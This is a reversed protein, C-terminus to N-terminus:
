LAITHPRKLAFQGSVVWGWFVSNAVFPLYGLLGGFSSGLMMGLPWVGPFLLVHCLIAVIKYDVGAPVGRNFALGGIGNMALLLLWATIFHLCAIAFVLTRRSM